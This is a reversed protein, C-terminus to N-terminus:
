PTKVHPTSACQDHLDERRWYLSMRQCLQVAVRQERTGANNGRVPNPSSSEQEVAELGDAYGSVQFNHHLRLYRPLHSNAVAWIWISSDYERCVAPCGNLWSDPTLTKRQCHHM